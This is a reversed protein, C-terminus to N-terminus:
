SNCLRASRGVAFRAPAAEGTRRGASSRTATATKVCGVTAAHCPSWRPRGRTVCGAFTASLTAISASSTSAWPGKWRVRCARGRRSRPWRGCAGSSGACRRRARWRGCRRRGSTAASMFTSTTWRTCGGGDSTTGRRTWRGSSARRTPAPELGRRQAAPGNCAAAARLRPVRSACSPRDTARAERTPFPVRMLLRPRSASSPASASSCSSRSRHLAQARATGLAETVVWAKAPRGSCRM